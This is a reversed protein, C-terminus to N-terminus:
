DQDKELQLDVKVHIYNIIEKALKWKMAGTPTTVQFRKRHSVMRIKVLERGNMDYLQYLNYYILFHKWFKKQYGFFENSIDVEGYVMWNNELPNSFIHSNTRVRIMDDGPVIKSFTFEAVSDDDKIFVLRAENFKNGLAATNEVQGFKTLLFKDNFKLNVKPMIYYYNPMYARYFDAGFFLTSCDSVTDGYKRVGFSAKIPVNKKVYNNKSAKTSFLKVKEASELTTFYNFYDIEFNQM